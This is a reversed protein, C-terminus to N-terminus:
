ENLVCLILYTWLTVFHEWFCLCSTLIALVEYKNVSTAIWIHPTLYFVLYVATNKGAEWSFFFLYLQLLVLVNQLWWQNLHALTGTGSWCFCCYCCRCFWLLLNCLPCPLYDYSFKSSSVNLWMLLAFHIQCQDFTLASRPFSFIEAGAKCRVVSQHVDFLLM